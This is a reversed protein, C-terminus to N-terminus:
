KLGKIRVRVTKKCQEIYSKYTNCLAYGPCTVMNMSIFMCEDCDGVSKCYEALKSGTALKLFKDLEKVMIKYDKKTM